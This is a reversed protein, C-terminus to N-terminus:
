CKFLKMPGLAPRFIRPESCKGCVCVWGFQLSTDWLYMRRHTHTHSYRLALLTISSFFCKLLINYINQLWTLRLTSSAEM